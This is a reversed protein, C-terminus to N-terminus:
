NSEADYGLMNNLTAIYGTTRYDECLTKPWFTLIDKELKQAKRIKNSISYIETGLYEKGQQPYNTSNKSCSLSNPDDYKLATQIITYLQDNSVDFSAKVSPYIIKNSMDTAYYPTIQGDFPNVFLHNYDNIDVICGHKTGSHGQKRVCDSVRDLFKELPYLGVEITNIAKDMNDYFYQINENPLRRVSGGNLINLKGNNKRCIFCYRNNKKLMYLSAYEINFRVDINKGLNFKYYEDRRIQYIGDPKNKFIDYEMHLWIPQLYPFRKGNKKDYGFQNNAYIRYTSDDYFKNRHTHGSIYIYKKHYYGLYLSEQNVKKDINSKADQTYWCEIPMHTMVIVERDYLSGCIKNYLTAIKKSENIEFSRSLFKNDNYLGHTSNFNENCGSFGIGGFITLRSYQTKERLKENSIKELEKENIIIPDTDFNMFCIMDNQLIYMRDKLLSRYQEIIEDLKQDSYGWTEHNGLVFITIINSRRSLENIFEKFVEPDYSVDGAILVIYKYFPNQHMSMNRFMQGVLECMVNLKEDNTKANFKEFIFDIHIDSIYYINESIKNHSFNSCRIFKESNVIQFKDNENYEDSSVFSYLSPVLPYAETKKILEVQKLGSDYKYYYKGKMSYPLKTTEDVTCKQLFEIPFDIQSLDCRRLDSGLNVILEKADVCYERIKYILELTDHDRYEFEIYYLQAITNYGCIRKLIFYNNHLNYFYSKFNYLVIGSNNVRKIIRQITNLTFEIGFKKLFDMELYPNSIDSFVFRVVSDFAPSNKKITKTIHWYFLNEV